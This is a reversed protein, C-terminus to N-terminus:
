GSFIVQHDQRTVQRLQANGVQADAILKQLNATLLQGKGVPPSCNEVTTQCRRAFGSSLLRSHSSTALHAVASCSMAREARWFLEGRLAGGTTKGTTYGFARVIQDILHQIVDIRSRTGASLQQTIFSASMTRTVPSSFHGSAAPPSQFAPSNGLPISSEPSITGAIM